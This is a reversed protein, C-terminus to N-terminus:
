GMIEGDGSENSKPKAERDTKKKNFRYTFSLTFQRVNRQMESYSNLTPLNVDRIMKRSNFLDSVNFAITGMDKLVDKSFALNASGVGLNLGQAYKLPANYVLNTQWDIKYPLNIKSTLRSTWSSSVNDFNQIITTNATNTFKFEGDTKNNFFNFNGNLKWWKKLNYNLNFEFGLRTDTSLNFPKNIVVPIGNQLDGRQYRVVQFADKTQNFYVSTSLTLKEWKKLFGIDYVDSFTPNLDPNGEFLNINSSYSSFPNIFRDRPRTIRKSYNLSLNTNESIEYTLFASPFFNDYNKTQYNNTKAQNVEINSNEYRLGFLYSIKKIKSGFQTYVANVNEIYELSGTFAEINSFVNTTLNKEQVQYQAFFNLYNGRFGAEIQINKKIPLVYDLQILNRNQKESKLTSESSIATGSEIFKGDIGANEKEKNLGFSGDMTIKHGEKKFKKVFTTTYEVNESLSNLNNDRRNSNLFERNQNFNYYIVEETNLGNNKRYNFANTWSTSKDLYLEIGFNLNIGEGGRINTRRENLLSKLNGFLDLNEQDIKIKGLSTRDNYGLTSFINFQESKFNLNASAGTNKPEGVSVIFTGNLGQNKGKKLIINIIGGGGEADYRASPNTVVEVKDIADAPILKLADNINIASSPKGDILIRVNENGRLSVNGEVDVAVSPINDLVDSVTGGKVMIDKGVSYVKKDLKIDVSTKEVRIEVADLKQAEDELYITGLNTNQTLSKEKMELTKFSIFEFKINYKGPQIAISFNGKSDSIGGSVVQNSNFGIFTITAYELPLTSSKEIIKGSITIKSNEQKQQGFFTSFNLTLLLIFLKNTSIM